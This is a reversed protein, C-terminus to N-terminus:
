STLDKKNARYTPCNEINCTNWCYKGHGDSVEVEVFDIKGTLTTMPTIAEKEYPCIESSKSTNTKIPRERADIPVWVEHGGIFKFKRLTKEKM